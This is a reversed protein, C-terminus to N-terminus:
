ASVATTEDDEGYVRNFADIDAKVYELLSKIASQRGEARYLFNESAIAWGEAYATKGGFERCTEYDAGNKITELEM